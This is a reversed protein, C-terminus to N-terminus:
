EERRPPQRRSRRRRSTPCGGGAALVAPSPAQAVNQAASRMTGGRYHYWVIGAAYSLCYLFSIPLYVVAAPCHRLSALVRMLAQAVVLPLFMALATVLSGPLIDRVKRAVM